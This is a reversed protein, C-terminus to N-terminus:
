PAALLLYADESPGFPPQAVMLQDAGRRIVVPGGDPSMELYTQESYETGLLAWGTVTQEGEVFVVLNLGENALYLDGFVLDGAPSLPSWDFGLEEDVLGENYPAFVHARDWGFDAVESLAFSGGVGAHEAERALDVHLDRLEGSPPRFAWFVVAASLPAMAVLALARRKTYWPANLSKQIEAEEVNCSDANDWRHERLSFGHSSTRRPLAHPTTTVSAYPRGRRGSRM